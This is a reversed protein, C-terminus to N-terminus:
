HLANQELEKVERIGQVEKGMSTEEHNFPEPMNVQALKKELDDIASYLSDGKGFEPRARHGPLRASYKCSTTDYQILCVLSATM